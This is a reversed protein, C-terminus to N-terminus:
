LSSVEEFWDQFIASLISDNVLEKEDVFNPLEITWRYVMELSVDELQVQPHRQILELAIAYSDEWTLPDDV